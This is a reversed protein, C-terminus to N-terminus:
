AVSVERTKVALRRLHMRYGAAGGIAVPALVGLIEIGFHYFLFWLAALGVIAIAPLAKALSLKKLIPSRNTM